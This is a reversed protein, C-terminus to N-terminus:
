CTGAIIRLDKLTNRVGAAALSRWNVGKVKLTSKLTIRCCPAFNRVQVRGWTENFVEPESCWYSRRGAMNSKHNIM